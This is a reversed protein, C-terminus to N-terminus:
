PGPFPFGGDRMGMMGFPPLCYMTTGGGIPSPQCTYGDDTRCEADSTCTKVCTSTGFGGFGVTFCESGAGCESAGSGATCAATCYGGPLSAAGGLNTICMAGAPSASCGAADTCGSGIGGTMTPIGGDSPVPPTGGDEDIPPVGLDEDVITGADTGIPLGSDTTAPTGLDVDIVLSGDAGGDSGPPPAETHSDGCAANALALMLVLALTTRVHSM